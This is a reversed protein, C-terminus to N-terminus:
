ILSIFIWSDKVTGQTSPYVSDSNYLDANEPINKLDSARMLLIATEM